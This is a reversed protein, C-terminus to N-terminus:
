QPPQFAGMVRNQGLGQLQFDWQTHISWPEEGEEEGRMHFMHAIFFIYNEPNRRARTVDSNVINICAAIDYLEETDELFGEDGARFIAHFGEHLLTASKPVADALNTGAHILNNADRYSNARPSEDSSYPCLIISAIPNANEAQGDVGRSAGTDSFYYGNLTTLEGSWWPRNNPDEGLRAAYDPINMISVLNDDQDRIEQALYDLAPWSPEQLSLFESHCFLRYDDRNYHAVGTEENIRHNFFSQIYEINARVGSVANVRAGTSGLRGSNAIGFFISM